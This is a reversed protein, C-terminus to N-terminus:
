TNAALVASLGQSTINEDRALNLECLSSLSSLMTLSNDTVAANDSLDLVRLATLMALSSLSYKDIAGRARLETLGILRQIGRYSSNRAPHSIDLAHLLSCSALAEFVNNLSM